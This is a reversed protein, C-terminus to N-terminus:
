LFLYYIKKIHGMKGCIYLIYTDGIAAAELGDYRGLVARDGAAKYLCVVGAMRRRLDIPM